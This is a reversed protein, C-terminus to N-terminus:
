STWSKKYRANGPSCNYEECLVLCSHIVENKFNTFEKICRHCSRQSGQRSCSSLRSCETFQTLATGLFFTQPTWSVLLASTLWFLASLLSFAELAKWRSCYGDHSNGDWNWAGFIGDCRITRTHIWQYLIGFSAFWGASILLDLPYHM